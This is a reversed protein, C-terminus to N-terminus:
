RDGKHTNSNVLRARIVKSDIDSVLQFVADYAAHITNYSLKIKNGSTYKLTDHKEKFEEDVVGDTHVLKHRIELYYIASNALSEDIDIGIKKHFKKILEITSRENELAQFISDIVIDALDGNQMHRLIEVSTLKVTHEGCIREPSVKANNYVEKMTGKLYISFEEYLDKIYATYVTSKLHNVVLRRNSKVKNYTSLTTYKVDNSGPFLECEDSFYENEVLQTLIDVFDLDGNFHSMKNKFSVLSKSKLNAM